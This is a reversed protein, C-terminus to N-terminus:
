KFIMNRLDWSLIPLVVGCDSITVSQVDSLKTAKRVVGLGFKVQGFVGKYRKVDGGLLQFREPDLANGTTIGFQSSKPGDHVEFAAWVIGPAGRHAYIDDAMHLGVGLPRGGSGDNCEYDGGIVCEYVPDGKDVVQLLKTSKYSPGLEGTCLIKFHQALATHAALEIYVRGQVRGEWSLDLFATVKRQNLLGLLNKHKNVCYNDGIKMQCKAGKQVNSGDCDETVNKKEPSIAKISLGGNDNQSGREQNHVENRNTEYSTKMEAERRKVVDEIEYIIEHIKESLVQTAAEKYFILTEYNLTGVKEVHVSVVVRGKSEDPNSNYLVLKDLNRGEQLSPSFSDGEVATVDFDLGKRRLARCQQECYPCVLTKDRISNNLCDTCFTLDCVLCRPRVNDSYEQNCVECYEEANESSDNDGMIM